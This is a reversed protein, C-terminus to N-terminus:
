HKVNVWEERQSVPNTAPATMNLQTRYRNTDILYAFGQVAVPCVPHEWTDSLQCLLFLDAEIEMPLFEPDESTVM